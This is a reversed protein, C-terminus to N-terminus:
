WYMDPVDIAVGCTVPAAARRLASRGPSVGASTLSASWYRPVRLQFVQVSGSETWSFSSSTELIPGRPSKVIATPESATTPTPPPGARKGIVRVRLAVDNSRTRSDAVSRGAPAVAEKAGDLRNPNAPTAVVSVTM